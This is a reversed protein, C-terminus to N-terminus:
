ENKSSGKYVNGTGFKISRCNEQRNYKHKVYFTVVENSYKEYEKLNDYIDDYVRGIKYKSMVEKINDAKLVKGEKNGCYMKYINDKIGLSDVIYEAQKQERATVVLNYEYNKIRDILFDNGKLGLKHSYYMDEFEKDYKETLKEKQEENITNDSLYDLIKHWNVGVCKEEWEKESVERINRCCWLRTDEETDVLTGDLDYVNFEKNKISYKNILDSSIFELLEERGIQQILNRAGNHSTIYLPEGCLLYSALQTVPNYSKEELARVVEKLVVECNLIEKKNIIRTEENNGNM